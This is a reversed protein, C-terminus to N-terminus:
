GAAVDEEASKIRYDHCRTSLHPNYFPDTSWQEGWRQKFADLEHQYVGSKTVAEHHYLQAYPTYVIRCGSAVARLCYDVDNYNLPFAESFGGLRHFTEARTMICAGTVASYNRPVLNGGFYGPDQGPNGYFPHGPSGGLITVGVHQLRGDPFLLKAGVAAVGAQQSYELMRELWDPSIVEIDDNLFVLHDGDAKAAGLNMKLALNFEDTYSLRRVGWRDLEKALAPPMDENDIVLIEYNRYTSQHRISRVCAAVHTTDRGRIRAERCGTPIVISVKPHGAIAFRVRHYGNVPGPGVTAKCGITALYSVLARRATENAQPKSVHSVATSTPLRRWHYLVDAIHGVRSSRAVIRLALDYDQATDFESRFGGLDRVLAMRYVGLHCTYMCAQFYEPSWDPKFFPNVHRGDLELQDEDSYIMDLDRNAIIAEAVRFLAHEALEDDHDLLAVYEGTALALASNSAAAINGREPRFTVRIRSDRRSYEELITRVHPESSADDAICLEWHPYTQRLVSEVALRLYCAPVNYVPMLVSLLPPDTMAAAEVRMQERDRETLQRRRRWSEYERAQNRGAPVLAPGNLGQMLKTRFAALRGRLLLGLGRCLAAVVQGHQRLLKVKSWFAHWLALPAPVPDVRLSELQFEGEVDLPDIRVARVASPVRLFLDADVRNVVDLRALCDARSFGTGTQGYIELRGEVASSMKLRIRAWGAPLLCPVHFQPDNGLSRWTGPPRAPVPELERAPLLFRADFGRPRVLRRLARLPGLAKWARSQMMSTLLSDTIHHQQRSSVLEGRLSEVEAKHAATQTLHESHLGDVAECAATAIAHLGAVQTPPAASKAACQWGAPMQELAATAELTKACIYVKRYALSDTATVRRFFSQNLRHRVAAAAQYEALHESLVLAGLWLHLPSNDLVAPRCGLDRLMALVEEERPLGFERHERLFPHPCGHRDSYAAAAIEEAEVVVPVGNPCSFIAGSRAVRLCEALFPQRAGAPMHELVDLALVADFAEAAFPLPKDKEILVFRDDDGYCQTDCRTVEVRSPDLFRPLLNLVNSGVELIHIPPRLGILMRDLVRAAAAYRQCEDFGLATAETARPLLLGSAQPEVDGGPQCGDAIAASHM